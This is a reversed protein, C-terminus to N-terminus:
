GLCEKVVVRHHGRERITNVAAMVDYMSNATQGVESNRCLWPEEPSGVLTKRLLDASWAKSYLQGITDNYCKNLPREKNTLNAFLPELLGVSDPGWAWPRLSGIKRERLSQAFANAHPDYEVFEPLAYGAEKIASLFATSSDRICM